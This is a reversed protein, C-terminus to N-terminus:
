LKVKKQRFLSSNPKNTFHESFSWTQKHNFHVIKYLLKRLTSFLKSKARTYASNIHTLMRLTFPFTNFANLNLKLVYTTSSGESPISGELAFLSLRASAERSCIATERGTSGAQMWVSPLQCLMRESLHNLM